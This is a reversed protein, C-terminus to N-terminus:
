EVGTGVPVLDPEQEVKPKPKPKEKPAEETGAASTSASGEPVDSSETTTAAGDPIDPADTTRAAEASAVKAKDDRVLYDQYLQSNEPGFEKAMWATRDEHDNKDGDGDLDSVGTNLGEIAKLHEAALYDDKDGMMTSVGDGDADQYYSRGGVAFDKAVADKFSGPDSVDGGQPPIYKPNIYEPRPIQSM